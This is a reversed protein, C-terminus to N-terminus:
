PVAITTFSYCEFLVPPAIDLTCGFMQKFYRIGTLFRALWSKYFM